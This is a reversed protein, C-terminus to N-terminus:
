QASHKGSYISYVPIHPFYVLFASPIFELAIAPKLKWNELLRVLKIKPNHGDSWQKWLRGSEPNLTSKILGWSPSNNGTPM